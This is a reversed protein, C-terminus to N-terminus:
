ADCADGVRDGDADAQDPNPVHPCNDSGSAIGDGDHDAGTLTRFSFSKVLRQTAGEHRTRSADEVAIEFRNEAYSESYVPTGFLRGREPDLEIGVPLEGSFVAFHHPPTGGWVPLEYAYPEGARALPLQGWRPEMFALARDHGERRAALDSLVDAYAPDDHRSELEYPDNALDYLEVDGEGWEVYKWRETRLGAWVFPAIAYEFPFESRWAAASGTLLPALSAGDTDAEIGALDLLTAPLDLNAVVLHDDVRPAADPAVLVLPVRISEEYPYAKTYHDHEGWLMGNDSFFAVVTRDRLALEDLKAVVADVVRDVGALARLQNRHFEDESAVNRAFPACCGALDRIPAPKDSLDVEGHGRGRYLFDEFLAEDGPVPTAPHHPENVSLILLFPEDAHDELFRLAHDRYHHLEPEDLLQGSWSASPAEGSTGVREHDVWLTWGPPVRPRIEGHENLYKGIHATAYGAAQFLTGLSVADDFRAAGGNPLGNWLVGTERARLGGALFSARTPACLPYDVFANQFLVGRQALEELRPTAFLTDWRQDDTIVVVFSPPGAVARASTPVSAATSEAAPSSGSGGDRCAAVLLSAVVLTVAVRALPPLAGARHRVRTRAPLPHKQM